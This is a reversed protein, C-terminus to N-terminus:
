TDVHFRSNFKQQGHQRLTAVSFLQAHLESQLRVCLYSSVSDRPIWAKTSRLIERRLNQVFWHRRRSLFLRCKLESTVCCDPSIKSPRQHLLCRPLYSEPQQKRTYTYTHKDIFTLGYVNLLMRKVSCSTLAKSKDLKCNNKKTWTVNKNVKSYHLSPVYICVMHLILSTM